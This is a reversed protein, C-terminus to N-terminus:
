EVAFGGGVTTGIAGTNDTSSATGFYNPVSSNGFLSGGNNLGYLTAAQGLGSAAQSLGANSANTSGVLGAASAAAGATTAANEQGSANLGLSGLGAGANQGSGAVGGLMNYIQQNQTLYNQFQQQFTNDALGTAYQAAGKLAAGSSGLGQAAYSNQTAKLGQDLTFQYGPTQELQQETPQFKETLPGNGGNGLGLQQALDGEALTGTYLFPYLNSQTQNFAAQTRLSADNAANAQMGAADEAAGAAQSGAYISAGAGIAAAAVAGIGM